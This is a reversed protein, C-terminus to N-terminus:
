AGGSTTGGVAAERYMSVSASLNGGTPWVAGFIAIDSMPVTITTTAFTADENVVVTFGGSGLQSEAQAQAQSSDLVGLAVLRSSDRAVDFFRSQQTMVFTVDVVFGMILVFVPVWVVFEVSAGGDSNRRFESFLRKLTNFRFM